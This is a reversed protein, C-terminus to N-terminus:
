CGKSGFVKGAYKNEIFIMAFAELEFGEKFSALGENLM